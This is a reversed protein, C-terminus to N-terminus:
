HPLHLSEETVYTGRLTHLICYMTLPPPRQVRRQIARRLDPLSWGGLTELLEDPPSLILM